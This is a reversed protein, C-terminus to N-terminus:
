AGTRETDGGRAARLAALAQPSRDGDLLEELLRVSRMVVGTARTRKRAKRYADIALAWQEATDCRALGAHALGSIDLVQVNNPEIDLLRLAERDARGFTREAAGFAEQRVQTIGLLALAALPRQNDFFRAAASAADSAEEIDGALLRALGLTFYTERALEVNGIDAATRIARAALQRAQELRGTDILVYAAADLCRATLLPRGGLSLDHAREISDLAELPRGLDQLFTGTRLLLSAEVDTKTVDALAATCHDLAEQVNGIEALCLALRMRARALQDGACGELVAEYTAAAKRMHGMSRQADALKMQLSPRPNPRDPELEIAGNIVEIARQPQSIDLLIASLDLRNKIEALPGDLKGVLCERHRVVLSRYDWATLLSQDVEEILIAAERIDRGQLRLEIESFHPALDSLSTPDADRLRVRRFYEAARHWLAYRTFRPTRSTRDIPRGLPVTELVTDGGPDPPLYYLEDDRRVLRRDCLLDLAETSDLGPYYPALLWSVASPRVPRGYVALAQIVGGLTGNLRNVVRRILYRVGGDDRSSAATASDLLENLDPARDTRLAAYILEVVRPHGGALRHVRRMTSASANELGVLNGPDLGRAFEGAFTEALGLPISVERVGDAGDGAHPGHTRSVLLLRLGHGPRYVVSYVFERLHLDTLRGDEFLEEANDIVLLVRHEGFQEMILILNQHWTYARDALRELLLAYMDGDPQACALKELLLEVTVRRPGHTSVYVAGAYGLSRLRPIMDSVVATKGAGSPGQLTVLRVEQQRLYEQLADRETLRNCLRGGTIAPPGGVMRFPGESAVITRHEADKALGDRILGDVRRQQGRPNSARAQERQIFASIKGARARLGTLQRGRALKIRAELDHLRDTLEAVTDNAPWHLSLEHELHNWGGRDPSLDIMGADQGSLTMRATSGPPRVWYIPKNWDSAFRIEKRAWSGAAVAGDTLIVLMLHSGIIANEIREEWSADQVNDRDIWATIPLNSRELRDVLQTAHSFGDASAYAVFAVIPEM